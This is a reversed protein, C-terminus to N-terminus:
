LRKRVRASISASISAALGSIRMARMARMALTKYVERFNAGVLLLGACCLPSNTYSMSSAIELNEESYCNVFKRTTMYVVM